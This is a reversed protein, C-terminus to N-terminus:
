WSDTLIVPGDEPRFPVSAGTRDGAGAALRPRQLRVLLNYGAETQPPRWTGARMWAYTGPGAAGIDDVEYSGSLCFIEVIASGTGGGLPASRPVYHPLAACLFTQISSDEDGRLPKTFLSASRSRGHNGGTWNLEAAGAYVIADDADIDRPTAIELAGDTMLLLIAGDRSHWGSWGLGAPLYAYSDRAYTVDGFSFAGQLVYVECAATFAAPGATWFGAPLRLLQTAAGTRDDWSLAKTEVAVGGLSRSTWPLAQAHAFCVHPFCVQARAM